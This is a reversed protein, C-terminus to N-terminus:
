ALPIMGAYAAAKTQRAGQPSSALRLVERYTQRIELRPANPGAMMARHLAPLRYCPVYMLLHHEAHYNVWYPALFVRAMPGALTTRAVAMPDGAVPLVAHEAINRVRTVAQQWTLLPVVWCLPYLWWHGAAIALGLLVANAVLTPGLNKWLCALRTPLPAAPDGLAAKMQASRQKLGTRGSLDRLLKRRLSDPTVPFPASLVLDPDASTQAHAHHRFHYARYLLTDVGIPYGCFWQSIFLNLRPNRALGGHAGEHMLIALGLQRSGIIAIALPAFVIRAWLPLLVLVAATGLMVAWAHAVCWLGWLTSRARVRELQADSILTRAAISM